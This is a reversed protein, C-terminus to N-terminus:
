VNKIKGTKYNCYKQKGDSAYYYCGKSTFKTVYILRKITRVKVVKKEALDYYRIQYTSINKDPNYSIYKAFYVKSGVFQVGSQEKCLSKLTDNELDYVKLSVPSIDNAQAVVTMHTDRQQKVVQYKFKQVTQKTDMNYIYTSSEFDYNGSYYSFYLDSGYVGSLTFKKNKWKKVPAKCKGDKGTSYVTKGAQYYIDDGNTLVESINESSTIITKVEEDAKKVCIQKNNFGFYTDGVKQFSMKEESSSQALTNYGTMTAAKVPVTRMGSIGAAAMNLVLSYALVRTLGRKYQKM